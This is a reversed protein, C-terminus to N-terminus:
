TCLKSERKGETASRAENLPPPPFSVDFNAFGKSPRFTLIAEQFFGNPLHLKFEKNKLYRKIRSMIMRDLNDDDANDLSRAREPEEGVVTDLYNLANLRICRMVSMDGDFCSDVVSSVLEDGSSITARGTSGSIANSTDQSSLVQYCSLLIIFLKIRNM